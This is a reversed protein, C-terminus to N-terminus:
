EAGDKTSEAKLKVMIELDAKARAIEGLKKHALARNKYALHNGPELKIATSFDEVAERYKGLRAYTAGRNNYALSWSENLSISKTFDTLAEQLRGAALHACGRNYYLDADPEKLELLRNYDQIAHDYGGRLLQTAARDRLYLLNDPDDVLLQDYDEIARDYEYEEVYEMARDALEEEELIEEEVITEIIEEEFEDDDDYGDGGDGGGGVGRPGIPAAALIEGAGSTPMGSAANAPAQGPNAAGSAKAAEYAERLKAAAEDLMDAAEGADECAKEADGKCAEGPRAAATKLRNGVARMPKKAAEALLEAAEPCAGAVKEAVSEAEEKIDDQNKGMEKSQDEALGQQAGGECTQAIGRQTQAAQECAEAASLLEEPTAGSGTGAAGRGLAFYSQPGPTFAATSVELSYGDQGNQDTGLYQDGDADFIGDGDVDRYFDVSDLNVPPGKADGKEGPKAEAPMGEALQSANAVLTVTEGKMCKPPYVGLGPAPKGGGCAPCGRGDCHACADGSCGECDCGPGHGHHGHHGGHHYGGWDRELDDAFQIDYKAMQRLAAPRSVDGKTANLPQWPARKINGQRAHNWFQQWREIAEDLEPVSQSKDLALKYLNEGRNRYASALQPDNQIAANFDRQAPILENKKQHALGRGNLAHPDNPKLELAKSYDKIAGDYERRATRAMGRKIYVSPNTPDDKVAQTFRDVPGGAAEREAEERAVKEKVFQQDEESLAGLPMTFVKGTRNFQLKVMGQEMGLYEADVKGKGTADTWIRASATSALLGVVILGLTLVRM